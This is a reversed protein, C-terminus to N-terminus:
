GVVLKGLVAVWLIVNVGIIWKQTNWNSKIVAIDTKVKGMESNIIEIHGEIKEIREGYISKSM